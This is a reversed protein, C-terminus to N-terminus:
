RRPGLHLRQKITDQDASISPAVHENMATLAAALLMNSVFSDFLPNFKELQVQNCPDRNLGAALEVQLLMERPIM